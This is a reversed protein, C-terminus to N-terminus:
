KKEHILLTVFREACWLEIDCGNLYQKAQEVAEADDACVLPQWGVFHGDDGRIYVRYDAMRLDGGQAGSRAYLGYRRQQTQESQYM